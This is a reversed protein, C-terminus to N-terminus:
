QQLHPYKHILCKKLDEYFIQKPEMICPRTILQFVNHLELYNQQLCNKPMFEETHSQLGKTLLPLNLRRDIMSSRQKKSSGDGLLIFHNKTIKTNISVTSLIFREHLKSFATLELKSINYYINDINDAVTLNQMQFPNCIFGKSHKDVDNFFDIISISVRENKM